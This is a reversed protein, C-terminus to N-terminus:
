RMRRSRRQADPRAPSVGMITALESREPTGDPMDNESSNGHRRAQRAPANAGCTASGEAFGDLTCADQRSRARGAAMPASMPPSAAPAVAGGPRRRGSRSRLAFASPLVFPRPVLGRLFGTQVHPHRPVSRSRWRAAQPALGAGICAHGRAECSLVRWLKCPACGHGGAAVVIEPHTRAGRLVPAFALALAENGLYELLRALGAAALGRHAMGCGAAAACAGALPGARAQPAAM